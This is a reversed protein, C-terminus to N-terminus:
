LCLIQIMNGILHNCDTIHNLRGMLIRMHHHHHWLFQYIIHALIVLADVLGGLGNCGFQIILTLNEAIIIKYLFFGVIGDKGM